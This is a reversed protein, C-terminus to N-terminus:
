RRVFSFVLWVSTAIFMAGYTVLNANRVAIRIRCYALNPPGGEPMGVMYSVVLYEIGYSALFFPVLLVLTAAPIVWLNKESPPGIWASGLFFWIVEALPSHWNQIANSRDAICSAAFEVGLMIAWAVPAGIITSALNSAANSKMAEAMTLGLWKKCLLGEVVIVPILLMLMLPLTLAIMPIGADALLTPLISAMPLTM